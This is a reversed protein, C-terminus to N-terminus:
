VYIHIINLHSRWCAVSGRCPWSTETHTHTRACARARTRKRTRTGTRTRTPWIWNERYFCWVLTFMAHMEHICKTNYPQNPPCLIIRLDDCNCANPCLSYIIMYPLIHNNISTCINLPEPMGGRWMATAHMEHICKTNYTQNPPCLTIRPDACNCANRTKVYSASSTLFSGLISSIHHLFPVWM